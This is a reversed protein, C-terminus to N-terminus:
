GSTKTAAGILGDWGYKPARTTWLTFPNLGASTLVKIAARVTVDAPKFGLGSRYIRNLLPPFQGEVDANGFVTKLIEKLGPGDFEQVHYPDHLSGDSRGHPTTLVLVGGIRLVRRVEELWQYPDGLHEIVEIAVAYDFSNSRFPCHYGSACTVPAAVGTHESLLARGISLGEFEQDLGVASGQCRAIKYLMVGDGCGIDLGLSNRFDLRRELCRLVVDYRAHAPPSSRRWGGAFTEQWHYAGMEEYKRFSNSFSQQDTM